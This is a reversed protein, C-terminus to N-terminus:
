ASTSVTAGTGGGAIAIQLAAVQRAFADFSPLSQAPPQPTEQQPQESRSVNNPSETSVTVPPPAQRALDRAQAELKADSPITTLFDGTDRDRLALVAKDYNVDVYVYPSIYPAQVVEQVKEPNAAFSRASSAQDAVARVLSANALTSNVAELM